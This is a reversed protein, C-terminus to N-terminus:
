MPPIRQAAEWLMAAATITSIPWPLLLPPLPATTPFHPSTWMVVSDLSTSMGLWLCSSLVKCPQGCSNPQVPRLQLPWTNLPHHLHLGSCVTSSWAMNCGASCLVLVYEDRRGQKIKNLPRQNSNIKYVVMVLYETAVNRTRCARLPPAQTGVLNICLHNRLTM